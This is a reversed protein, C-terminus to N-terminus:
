LVTMELHGNTSFQFDLTNTTWIWQKYDLPDIVDDSPLRVVGDGKSIIEITLDGTTPDMRFGYFVDEPLSDPIRVGDFSADAM